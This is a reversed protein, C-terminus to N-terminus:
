RVEAALRGQASRNQDATASQRSVTGGGRRAETPQGARALAPELFALDPQEDLRDLRGHLRDAESLISRAAAAIPSNPAAIPM